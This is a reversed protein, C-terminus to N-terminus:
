QNWQVKLSASRALGPVRRTDVPDIVGGDRLRATYDHLVAGGVNSHM